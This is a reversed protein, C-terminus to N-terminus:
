AAESSVISEEVIAAVDLVLVTKKGGLETAGAVGPVKALVRGLPKIVIDQQGVLEDVLIGLRHQALGVVVVFQKLPVGSRDDRAARELRFLRELRALPLTQGRLSMVERREITRVEPQQIRLSELVSNLPMAFTRGAVRVVLAQIIALTIPLTITLRTGQGPESEVDIIGSLKAINTKVVDMGVGRGSLEDATDKTSLGPLFMLNHVDRRSMDRAQEPDVAGREIAKQLLRREDLGQGDDEVEIIVHNGRQEARISITGVDPKGAARRAEPKEIGHDICNRMVHMLPDSLEEVILKDLETDAGSISLRIEKGADRSIKRVVRSLKDFIQGLPVMRVELIGAQLEDLRRTLSRLEHHMERALKVQARDAKLADLVAQMGARAIGLEGVINMLHDLKRIDVRVTQAVSKLSLEAAEDRLEEVPKERQKDIKAQQKAAQAQESRTLAPAEVRPMSMTTATASSSPTSSPARRPLMVVSSASGGVAAQVEALPASAGLIVDLEIQNENAAEASPLYTIVEGIPKLRSKLEDLGKDITMLDFAAHIRYLSRGAKVNERLRHEEYETLVSLLSADLQWGGWPSTEPQTEKKLAVRDLRAILDEVLNNGDDSAGSATESIIKNFLSVAEFLLDLTQPQLDVRGLRLSDLLNELNHSLNTMRTVGFLGSLGKLSHVARFADNIVEPDFNGQSRQEDLQLLDRNFAEVIEQAESLFEQLAKESPPPIESM